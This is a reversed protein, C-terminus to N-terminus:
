PALVGAARLKALLANFDTVLAGVSGAVSDAQAAAQKPLPRWSTGDSWYLLWGLTTHNVWCVCRDHQSAPFTSALNTENGAHEYVPWPGSKLVEVNDQVAADWGEAGSQVDSWLPKSM